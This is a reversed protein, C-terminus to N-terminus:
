STPARGQDRGGPAATAARAQSDYLMMRLVEQQAHSGGLTAMRALVPRMLAVVRGHEARRHALVAECVPLAVAGVIPALTGGGNGFERMAALAAQAAEDRGTAALAMIWHPLTFPSLCDGTRAQAKDAIELWRGGVDIGALELRFLMSAANQIDIYVDPQAQTLPAALNRFRRDYLDLVADFERRAFHFLAQHWWLHHVINGTGSWHRQQGELFAIGEASRGQMVMVHALAHAAWADEADIELALRAAPEARAYDDCEEAAFGLCAQMAGYGALERGWSPLLREVSELMREPRGLWFNNFHVLRFALLDTPHEALITEWVALARDIDGAIWADLADVHARERASARAVWRRAERAAERAAPVSAQKVALMSLYGKVCHALGFEPDATLTDALHVPTDARYKLYSRITRGFGAAAEASATAIALGHSDTQM